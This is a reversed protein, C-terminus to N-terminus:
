LSTIGAARLMQVAEVLPLGVVNTWSGHLSQVFAAARGQIGYAGAKDLPEGTAIYAAITRDSIDTMTVETTVVRDCIGGGADVVVVCTSVQHTRGSLRRLMLRADGPGAPKGLVQGDVVVATDAAVVVHGPAPVATAKAVAVRRVYDAAPEGPHCTEDVAAPRVVPDLGVLRLLDVRRPSGSALVLPPGDAV